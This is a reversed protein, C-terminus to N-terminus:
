FIVLLLINVSINQIAITWFKYFLIFTKYIYIVKFYKVILLIIQKIRSNM